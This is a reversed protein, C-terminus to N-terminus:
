IGRVKSGKGSEMSLDISWLSDWIMSEMIQPQDGRIGAEIGAGTEVGTEVGTGTGFGRLVGGRLRTEDASAQRRLGSGSAPAM